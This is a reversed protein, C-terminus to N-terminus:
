GRGALGALLREGRREFLQGALGLSGTWGLGAVALAAILGALSWGPRGFLAPLLALGVLTSGALTGALGFLTGAFSGSNRLSSPDRPVPFLLSALNGTAALTLGATAHALLGTLLALPSPPGALLSLSLLALAVLLGDYLWLALNKGALVTRPSVPALRWLAAGGADWGFANHFWNSSLLGVYLALGVFLTDAGPAGVFPIEAQTGFGRAILATFLPVMLLTFRGAASRLLYRLEKGVTARLPGPLRDVARALGGEARAGPSPRGTRRWGGGRRVIPEGSHVFSFAAWSVGALLVAWVVLGGAAALAEAPSRAVLADAALLPPLWRATGAVLTLLGTGGPSGGQDLISPLLSAGIILLLAGIGLAERLGRRRLVGAVLLTLAHGAALACAATGAIVGFALAPPAAGTASLVSAVVLLAPLYALHEFSLWAAGLTLLWLTRRAIPFVRLPAVDFGQDLSGTAIPVGLALVWVLVFLARLLVALKDLAEATGAEILMYTITGFAAAPGCAAALGAAAVAVFALVNFVRSSGRSARLVLRLRLGALALLRTM